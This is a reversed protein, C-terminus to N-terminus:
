GHLGLAIGRDDARWGAYQEGDAHIVVSSGVQAVGFGVPGNSGPPTTDLAFRLADV